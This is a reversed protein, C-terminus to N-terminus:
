RKIAKVFDAASPQRMRELFDHWTLPATSSAFTDANEMRRLQFERLRLKRRHHVLRLTSSVSTPDSVFKSVLLSLSLHTRLFKYSGRTRLFKYDLFGVLGMRLPGGPGSKAICAEVGLDRHNTLM